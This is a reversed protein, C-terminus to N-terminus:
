SLPLTCGQWPQLRPNSDRTGSRAGSSRRSLRSGAEGPTGDLRGAARRRWPPTALHDLRLDAFGRNPPEFGGAAERAWPFERVARLSTGSEGRFPKGPHRFPLRPLSLVEQGWPRAPELGAGPLRWTGSNRRRVGPPHVARATHRLPPAGAAAGRARHLSSAFEPPSGSPKRSISGCPLGRQGTPRALGDGHREPAEPRPFGSGSVPCGGVGRLVSIRLRAPNAEGRIGAPRRRGPPARWRLARRIRM